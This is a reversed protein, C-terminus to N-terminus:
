SWRLIFMIYHRKSDFDLYRWHGNEWVPSANYKLKWNHEMLQWHSQGQRLTTSAIHNSGGLSEILAEHAKQYQDLCKSIKVRYTM